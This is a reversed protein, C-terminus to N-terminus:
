MTIENNTERGVEDCRLNSAAVGHAYGASVVAIGLFLYHAHEILQPERWVLMVFGLVFNGLVFNILAAKRYGLYLLGLGPVVLSLAGATFPSKYSGMRQEMAVRSM